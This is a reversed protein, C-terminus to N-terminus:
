IIRTYYGIAQKSLKWQGIIWIHRTCAEAGYRLLVHDHLYWGHYLKVGTFICIHLHLICPFDLSFPVGAWFVM